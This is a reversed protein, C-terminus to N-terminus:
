SVSYLPHSANNARRTGALEHNGADFPLVPLYPLRLFLQFSLIEGTFISNTVRRVTGIATKVPKRTRPDPQLFGDWGESCAAGAACCAACGAGGGARSSWCIPLSM